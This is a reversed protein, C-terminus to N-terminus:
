KKDRKRWSYDRDNIIIFRLSIYLQNTNVLGESPTLFIYGTQLHLPLFKYGIAPGIGFCTSQFNSRVALSGGYTLNLRGKKFWYGASYGLVNQKFNYDFGMNVGHTKPQVLKVQKFQMEAGFELQRYRGQQIGIYAGTKRVSLLPKKKQDFLKKDQGFSFGVCFLLVMLFCSNKM